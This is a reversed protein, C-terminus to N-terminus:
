PGPQLSWGPQLLQLLLRDDASLVFDLVVQTPLLHSPLLFVPHGVPQSNHTPQMELCWTAQLLTLQLLCLARTKSVLIGVVEVVVAM